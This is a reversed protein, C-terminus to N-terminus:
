RFVYNCLNSLWCMLQIAMMFIFMGCLAATAIVIRQWIIRYDRKLIKGSVFRGNYFDTISMTRNNNNSNLNLEKRCYLITQIKLMNNYEEETVKYTIGKERFSKVVTYKLTNTKM